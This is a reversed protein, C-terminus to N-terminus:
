RRAAVVIMLSRNGQPKSAGVILTQGIKVNLTANYLQVLQQDKATGQLRSVRFEKLKVTNSAPDYEGFQFEARYGTPLEILGPEGERGELNAEGLNEFANFRLMSLKSAVERLEEPVRPANGADVRSAAVLRFVLTLPRPPADFEALVSAVQKVNEGRDTVVLSNSGPQISMSGDASLLPKIIAAAQDADKHKFQFTRVTLSRGADAADAFAAGCAFLVSLTLILIRKM